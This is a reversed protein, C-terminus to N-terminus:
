RSSAVLSLLPRSFYSVVNPAILPMTQDLPLYGSKTARIEVLGSLLWLNPICTGSQGTYCTQAAGREPVVDIRVDPIAARTVSDQVTVTFNVLQEAPTGPAVSYMSGGGGQLTQFQATIEVQGAALVKLFGSSAVVAISPNSSTWTAQDTVTDNVLKCIYLENRNTAVASCQLDSGVPSCSVELVSPSSVGRGLGAADGCTPSPGAPGCANLLVLAALVSARAIRRLLLCAM